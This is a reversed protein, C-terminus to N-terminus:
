IIESEKLNGLNESVCRLVVKCSVFLKWSKWSKAFRSVFFFFSHVIHFNHQHPPVSAGPMPPPVSAGPMPPPQPYESM